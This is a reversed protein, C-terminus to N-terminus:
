ERRGRKPQQEELEPAKYFYDRPTVRIGKLRERLEDPQLSLRECADKESVLRPFLRAVPKFRGDGLPEWDAIAALAAIM